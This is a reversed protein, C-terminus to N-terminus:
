RECTASQQHSEITGGFVYIYKGFVVCASEARAVNMEPLVEEGKTNLDFM